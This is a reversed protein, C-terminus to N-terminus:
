ATAVSGDITGAVPASTRARPGYAQSAARRDGLPVKKIFREMSNQTSYDIRTRPFARRLM